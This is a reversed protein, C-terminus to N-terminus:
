VDGSAAPTASLGEGGPCGEGPLWGAGEPVACPSADGVMLRPRGPPARRRGPSVRSPCRPLRRAAPPEAPGRWARAAPAGRRLEGSPSLPAKGLLPRAEPFSFPSAPVTGGRVCLSRAEALLLPHAGHHRPPLVRSQTCGLAGRRAGWGMRRSALPDRQPQHSKDGDAPCSRPRRACLQGGAGGAPLPSACPCAAACVAKGEKELCRQLLLSPESLGEAQGWPGMSPVDEGGRSRAKGGRCTPSLSLSLAREAPGACSGPPCRPTPAGLAPCGRGRRQPSAERRRVWRGTTCCGTGVTGPEQWKDWALHKCRGRSGRTTVQGAAPVPPSAPAGRPSGPPRHARRLM